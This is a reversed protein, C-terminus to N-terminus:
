KLICACRHYGAKTLVVAINKQEVHAVLLIVFRVTQGLDSWRLM